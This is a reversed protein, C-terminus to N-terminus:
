QGNVLLLLQLLSLIEDCMVFLSISKEWGNILSLTIIITIWAQRNIIALIRVGDVNEELINMNLYYLIEAPHEEKLTIGPCELTIHAHKLLM